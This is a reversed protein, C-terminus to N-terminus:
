NMIWTSEEDHIVGRAPKKIPARAQKAAHGKFPGYVLVVRSNEDDLRKQLEALDSKLNWIWFGFLSCMVVALMIEMAREGGHVPLGLESLRKLM